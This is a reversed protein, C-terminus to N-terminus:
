NISRCFCFLCVILGLRMTIDSLNRRNLYKSQQQIQSETLHGSNGATDYMFYRDFTVNLRGGHTYANNYVDYISYKKLSHLVILILLNSFYLLRDNFQTLKKKIKHTNTHSLSLFLFDGMILIPLCM